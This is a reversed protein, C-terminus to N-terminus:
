DTDNVEILTRGCLSVLGNQNILALLSIIILKFKLVYLDQSSFCYHNNNNRILKKEVTLAANMYMRLVQFLDVLDQIFHTHDCVLVRKPLLRVWVSRLADKRNFLNVSSHFSDLM